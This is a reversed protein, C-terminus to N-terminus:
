EFHYGNNEICCDVRKAFNRFSTQYLAAPINHICQSIRDSLEDLTAFNQGPTYVSDRLNSWLWFDCVTLDPSRAPWEIYGRRGIWRNGLSNDLIERADLSYHAPAGDHQYIMQDNIPRTFFPVVKKNLINCYRESNMTEAMIHFDILGRYGVLAWVTLSRTKASKVPFRIHPNEVAWFVVNHKNVSANLHFVCEDSFTLKRLFTFDRDMELKIRQCFQLRRDDDGDHLEQSYKPKWVKAGIDKHLIRLVSTRPIGTNESMKRSSTASNDIVAERVMAINEDGRATVPRGSRERDKVLTGTEMLKSKWFYASRKPPPDKNYEIQFRESAEDYSKLVILHACIFVKEVISYEM